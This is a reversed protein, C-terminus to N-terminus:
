GKVNTVIQILDDIELGYSECIANAAFQTTHGEKLLRGFERAVAHDASEPMDKRARGAAHKTDDIEDGIEPLDEGADFDMDALDDSTEMDDGGMEADDGMDMDMDMEDGEAGAEPEMALDNMPEGNAGGELKAIENSIGERVEKLKEVLGRLQESVAGSFARSQEASFYTTLPDALPMVDEADMKAVKEAMQQLEDSLSKAALIVEARELESEILFTIRKNM